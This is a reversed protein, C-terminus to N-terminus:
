CGIGPRSYQEMGSTVYMLKRVLNMILPGCVSIEQHLLQGSCTTKFMPSENELLVRTRIILLTQRAKLLRLMLTKLQGRLKNFFEDVLITAPERCRYDRHNSTNPSVSQLQSIRMSQWCICGMRYHIHIERVNQLTKMLLVASKDPLRTLSDYIDCRSLSLQRFDVIQKYRNLEWMTAKMTRDGGMKIIVGRHFAEFLAADQSLQKCVLVISLSEPYRGISGRTKGGLAVRFTVNKFLYRFINLRLEDSLTLLSPKTAGM